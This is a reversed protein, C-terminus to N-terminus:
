YEEDEGEEDLEDDGDDDLDLVFGGECECCEECLDCDACLESDDEVISGCEDCIPHGDERSM